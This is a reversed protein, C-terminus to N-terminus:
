KTKLKKIFIEKDIERISKQKQKTLEWMKVILNKYFNEIKKIQKQSDLDNESVLELNILVRRDLIPITEIFYASLLASLYSISFGDIKTNSGIHTLSCISEIEKLIIELEERNILSLKRKDIISDISKLHKSYELLKNKLYDKIFQAM